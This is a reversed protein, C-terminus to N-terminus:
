QEHELQNNCMQNFLVYEKGVPPILKIAPYEIITDVGVYEWNCPGILNDMKNKYDIFHQIDNSCGYLIIVVTLSIFVKYM